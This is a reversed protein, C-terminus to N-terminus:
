KYMLSMSSMKLSTNSYILIGIAFVVLGGLFAAKSL